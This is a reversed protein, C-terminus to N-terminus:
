GSESDLMKEYATFWAHIFHAEEVDKWEKDELDGDAAEAWGEEDALHTTDKDAGDADPGCNDITHAWLGRAFHWELYRDDIRNDKNGNILLTEASRSLLMNERFLCILNFHMTILRM